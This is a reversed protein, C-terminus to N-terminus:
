VRLLAISIAAFAGTSTAARLINWVVWRSEFASRLAQSSGQGKELRNNLPVNFAITIIITLVYLLLAVVIWSRVANDSRFTILSAALLVLGGGFIIGFVPNLIARNIGRMSSVFAEASIKRLGPMVAYSFAAFLGAMLGVSVASLILLTETM